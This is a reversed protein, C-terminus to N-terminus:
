NNKLICKYGHPIGSILTMNQNITQDVIANIKEEWDEICNVDWSPMRSPRLYFPIHHAVIGSLREMKIGKQTKLIPSGQIFM